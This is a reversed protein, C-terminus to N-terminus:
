WTPEPQIYECHNGFSCEDSDDSRLERGAHDEYVAGAFAMRSWQLNYNLRGPFM